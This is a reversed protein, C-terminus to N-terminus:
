QDEHSGAQERLLNNRSDNWSLLVKMYRDNIIGSSRTRKEFLTGLFITSIDIPMPLYKNTDVECMQRFLDPIVSEDPQVHSEILVQKAINNLLYLIINRAAPSGFGLTPVLTNFNQVTSRVSSHIFDSKMSAYAEM